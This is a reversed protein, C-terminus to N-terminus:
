FYSKYWGQQIARSRLSELFGNIKDRYLDHDVYLKMTAAKAVDAGAKPSYDILNNIGQGVSTGPSLVFVIQAPPQIAPPPQPQPAKVVQAAQLTVLQQNALQLQQQLQQQVAQSQQNAALVAADIMDQIQQNITRGNKCHDTIRIKQLKTFCLL